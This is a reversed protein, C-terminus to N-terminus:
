LNDYKREKERDVVLTELDSIRREISDLRKVVRSLTDKMESNMGRSRHKLTAKYCGGLTVAIVIILVFLFVDM